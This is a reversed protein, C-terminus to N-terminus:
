TLTSATINDRFIKNKANDNIMIWEIENDNTWEYVNRFPSLAM